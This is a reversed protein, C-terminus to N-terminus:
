DKGGSYSPNCTHAVLTRSLYPRTIKGLVVEFPSGGGTEQTAPNYTHVVCVAQGFLKADKM